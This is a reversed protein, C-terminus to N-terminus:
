NKKKAFNGKKENFFLWIQEIKQKKKPVHLGM